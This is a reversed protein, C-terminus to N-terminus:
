QSREQVQGRLGKPASSVVPVRVPVTPRGIVKKEFPMIGVVRNLGM